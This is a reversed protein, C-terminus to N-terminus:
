VPILKSITGDKHFIIILDNHLNGGLLHTILIKKSRGQEDVEVTYAPRPAYTYVRGGVVEDMCTRRAAENGVSPIIRSTSDGRYVVIVDNNYRAYQAPPQAQYRDDILARLYWCTEGKDNQYVVLKVVGKDEVFYRGTRCNNLYDRLLERQQPNTAVAVEQCVQASVERLGLLLFLTSLWRKM